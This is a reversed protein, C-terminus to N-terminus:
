NAAIGNFGSAPDFHGVTGLSTLYGHAPDIAFSGVTGNGANLTYLYRGDASITTDINVAGTALKAVVTSGIPTLVGNADISFGAISSSASNSTYVFRGDETIASWCNATGLTPVSSSIAKLTGDAQIRYSSIASANPIAGGTPSAPGTEAVIAIGGPAFTASFTGPGVNKNIVIPSLKGDQEVHFTDVVNTAKETVMVYRGDPSFSVSGSGTANASLFRISDPIRVFRGSSFYFGVVSSSGATNLVYVLNGHQAISNPESGSTRIRDTLTLRAGEIRFSSVTGSGANAALLWDGDKSVILSGQSALPDVTGGSGRGDTKYHRPDHLTGDPYREYAIVENEDADNTMVFVGHNEGRNDHAQTMGSTLAMAVAGSLLIKSPSNM